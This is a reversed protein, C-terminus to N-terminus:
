KKRKSTYYAALGLLGIIYGLGGLIDQLKPGASGQAALHRKIPALQDSLENRIIEKLEDNTSPSATQKSKALSIPQTKSSINEAPMLWKALHGDGSDATIFIDKAMDPSPFIFIGQKDTKGNAILNNDQKVSVSIGSALKKGGAWTAECIIEEGKEYAFVNMRHAQATSGMTLILLLCTTLVKQVKKTLLM